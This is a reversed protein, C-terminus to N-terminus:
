NIWPRFSQSDIALEENRSCCNMLPRFGVDMLALVLVILVLDILPNQKNSLM